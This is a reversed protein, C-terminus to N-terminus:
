YAVSEIRGAPTYHILEFNENQMGESSVQKFVLPTQLPKYNVQGKAGTFKHGYQALGRVFFQAHDYGTLAFRPYAYMMDKHFWARYSNEFQKTRADIANYYYYSPVYTDFAFFNELNNGTYMLWENYGFLSIRVNPLTARLSHLKAMAVTLEPSRGTNLVVVNHKNKSFAKAFVSESCTLNTVSYNRNLNELRNRLGFTFAGKKSTKDNCDVLVVHSKPFLKLFNDIANNNLKDDSQWVQFIQSYRTVDDGSISFPIVLKIDRAKCFEALAHVQSSYLPGFIVDCKAAAPDKTFDSINATVDVNWAHIDTSIGERKLSDCAMLLGRYYEVMRRGDGDVDHLPLMVGVHVVPLQRTKTENDTMARKGAGGSQIGATAKADKASGNANAKPVPIFLYDGKKLKYGPLRMEPNADMLEDVSLGNYHAIGYVTDQKKVKYMHNMPKQGWACGICLTLVLLALGIKKRM